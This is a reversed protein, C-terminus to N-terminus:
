AVIEREMRHLLANAADAGGVLEVGSTHLPATLKLEVRKTLAAPMGGIALALCARGAREVVASASGMFDQRTDEPSDIELETSIFPARKLAFTYAEDGLSQRIAHVEERAIAHQIRKANLTLGAFYCLERLASADRLVLRQLAEDFAFFYHGRLEFADLLYDSLSHVSRECDICAATEAANPLRAFWNSHTYSAPLFNFRAVAEALRQQSAAAQEASM